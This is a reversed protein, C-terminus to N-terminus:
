PPGRPVLHVAWPYLYNYIYVLSICWGVGSRGVMGSNGPYDRFNSSAGAANTSFIRSNRMRSVASAIIIIIARSAM